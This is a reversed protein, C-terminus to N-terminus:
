RDTQSIIHSLIHLSNIVENDAFSTGIIDHDERFVVVIRIRRESERVVLISERMTSVASIHETIRPIETLIPSVPRIPFIYSGNLLIDELIRFKEPFSIM